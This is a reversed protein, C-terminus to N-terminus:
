PPRTTPPTRPPAVYIVDVEPDAALEAWSGYARAFGHRQAFEEATNRRRSGVAALEAGDVLPLDGAFADAIGGTGLVGWRITMISVTDSGHGDPSPGRAARGTGADSTRM